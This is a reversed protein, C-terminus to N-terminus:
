AVRFAHGADAGFGFWPRQYCVPPRFGFWTSHHLVVIKGQRSIPLINFQRARRPTVLQKAEEPYLRRPDVKRGVAVNPLGPLRWQRPILVLMNKLWRVSHDPPAQNKCNSCGHLNTRNSNVPPM